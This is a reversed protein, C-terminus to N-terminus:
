QLVGELDLVLLVRGDGLITTGSVGPIGSLMGDLPKLMVEMREGLRDVEIGSTQGGITAVVIIANLKNGDTKRESLLSALDFIPITRDRRVVARAAGIASISEVPVSLTEVVAELPIGFMQGGSEVTMVHTMLVSFPLSFRVTTGVGVTSQIAVMGGLRAIANRVADMGVGRGSLETVKTATSFGPAFVLAVAQEASMSSASDATVIGRSVAAERIRGADIGGGDDQVEVVVQEGSRFARLTVTSMPPKGAAARKAADEIGHDMANRVVHLLPEFLMDVIAKDADTDGGEVVVRAPKGLSASMERVVPAFRQLVTALPLVRMELVAQQLETAIHGLQIFNKKLAHALSSEEAAARRTAHGLANKVVSLEGVLRVLDDIRSANVRLTKAVGDSRESVTTAPAFSSVSAISAGAIARRLAAADREAWSQKAAEEIKEVTSSQGLRRFINAAVRGAAGVRGELSTEDPADLLAVQAALVSQALDPLEVKAAFFVNEKSAAVTPTATRSRAIVKEAEAAAQEPIAGTLDIRDLWNRVQDLSFHSAALLGDSIPANEKRVPIFADETAHLAREMAAFDVIGAGGKLTHLARLLTELSERGERRHELAELASEAQEILERSEVVFQELFENM